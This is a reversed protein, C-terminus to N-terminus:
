LLVGGDEEHIQFIATVPDRSARTVVIWTSAQRERSWTRTCAHRRLPHPRPCAVPGGM